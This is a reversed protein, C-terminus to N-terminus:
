RQAMSKRPRQTRMVERMGRPCTSRRILRRGVGFFSLEEDRADEISVFTHRQADEDERESRTRSLDGEYADERGHVYRSM